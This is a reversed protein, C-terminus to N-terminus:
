YFGSILFGISFFCLFIIIREYYVRFPFSVFVKLLIQGKQLGVGRKGALNALKDIKLEDIKLDSM